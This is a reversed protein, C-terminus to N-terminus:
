NDGLMVYAFKISGNVIINTPTAGVNHDADDVLLNLFVDVPTSRGDFVAGSETATSQADATTASAAAQPTATTPILDQETTALAADNTAVVTGLGVDGDWDANVGAASLTLALDAVAGLFLVVGQPLDLLKLGGHAVVGAEDTLVVPTDVLDLVVQRVKGGVHEERMTVGSGNPSGLDAAGAAGTAANKLSRPLGKAM